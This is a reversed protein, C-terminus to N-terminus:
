RVNNTVFIDSAMEVIHHLLQQGATVGPRPLHRVLPPLRGTRRFARLNADHNVYVVVVTFHIIPLWLFKSDFSEDFGRSVVQRSM